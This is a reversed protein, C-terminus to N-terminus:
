KMSADLEEKTEFHTIVDVVDPMVFAKFERGPSVYNGAYRFDAPLDGKALQMFLADTFSSNAFGLVFMNGKQGWVRARLDGVYLGGCHGGDCQRYTHGLSFVQSCKACCMLKM